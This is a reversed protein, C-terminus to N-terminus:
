NILNLEDGDKLGELNYYSEPINGVIVAEALLVQTSVQEDTDKYPTLISINCDVDIYIKHLTQNIGASTFDSNISTQIDGATMLKIEINPGRGSLLKSGTFSGLRIDFTCNDNQSLKQQIQLAIKSCVKNVNIVNMKMLTINGKEDKDIECLDQYTLDQMADKSAENSLKAATSRALIKSKRELMPNISNIINIATLYAIIVILIFMILFRKHPKIIGSAVRPIRFRSYIKDM